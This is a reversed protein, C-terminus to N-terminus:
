CVGCCAHMFSSNSTWILRLVSRTRSPSRLAPFSLLRSFTAYLLAGYRYRNCMHDCFPSTTRRFDERGIGAQLAGTM